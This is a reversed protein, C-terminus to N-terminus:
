VVCNLSVQVLHFKMIIGVKPNYLGWLLPLNQQWFAVFNFILFVVYLNFVPNRKFLCYSLVSTLQAGKLLGPVPVRRSVTGKGERWTAGPPPMLVLFTFPLSRPLAVLCFM